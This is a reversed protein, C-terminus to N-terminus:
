YRGQALDPKQVVGNLFVADISYAIFQHGDSVSAALKEASPAVVHQGHPVKAAKARACVHDIAAKLDPHDFQGILNMSASLDYPGIFVADLGKVSLIEDINEVAKIHEIMAVVLPGRAEGARYDDFNKGFLNARSFGVGRRGTPPWACAAIVDSLQAATEIMPVIIGGAGAELAQKCDKPTGEAIRAMPLTNGLELARFLDPLITSGITGHELDVAVWDYGAMGMIEAVSSNPIQMWSGISAEGNAFKRRIDLIRAYRNM